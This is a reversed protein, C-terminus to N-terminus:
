VGDPAVYCLVVTRPDWEDGQLLFIVGHGTPYGADWKVKNNPVVIRTGIDVHRHGLPADDREDTIIAVYHDGEAEFGDAFYADAEGCCSYRSQRAVEPGQVM